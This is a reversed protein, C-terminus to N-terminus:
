SARRLESQLAKEVCRYELAIAAVEERAGSLDGMRAAAELARCADALEAAGLNASSSKLSHAAKRLAEADDNEAGRQLDDVVGPTSSLYLDIIRQLLDPRAQQQMARIRDLAHTELAASEPAAVTETAASSAADEVPGQASPLWRALVDCLEDQRFPKSLYDDMGAELCHERDGRMANATLAIIPVRSGGVANERRRIEATAAFGDVEPMQCDMLVIDFRQDTFADIASRGDEVLTVGCGLVKLMESVLEQNVLNDEAVLVHADFMSPLPKPAQHDDASTHRLRGDNSLGALCSLVDAQRTPKTLTSVFGLARWDNADMDLTMSSVLVLPTEALEPDARVRQAFGFGDIGPMHRDVLVVDYPKGAATAAHLARLAGEGDAVSVALTRWSLLQRELIERNTANDDLVLM